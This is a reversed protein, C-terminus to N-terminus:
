IELIEMNQELIGIGLGVWCPWLFFWGYNLFDYCPMWRLDFPYVDVLVRM